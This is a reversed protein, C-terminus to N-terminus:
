AIATLPTAQPYRAEDLICLVTATITKNATEAITLRAFEFGPAASEVMPGTVTVLHVANAVANNSTLNYGAAAALTLAGWTDVTTSWQLSRHYFPMATTNTPTTDDCADVTVVNSIGSDEIASTIIIWTVRNFDKLSVIDTSKGSTFADAVPVLGQVVHKGWLFDKQAM